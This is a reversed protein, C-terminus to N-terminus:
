FAGKFIGERSPFAKAKPTPEEPEPCGVGAGRGHLPSIKMAGHDRLEPHIVRKDDHHNKPLEPKLRALGFDLVKVHNDRTLMVNSPKLDCHILGSSHAARLAEAIQIAIELSAGLDLPGQKIKEVLTVGAVYEMVIYSTHHKRGLEYITGINPHSLGAAIRAERELLSRESPENFFSDARLFKIAVTRELRLDRAKYVEGLGGTGLRELLRYHAINEMTRDLM